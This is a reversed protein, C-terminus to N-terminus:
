CIARLLFGCLVPQQSVLVCRMAEDGGAPAEHWTKRNHVDRRPLSPRPQAQVVSRQEDRTALRAEHEDGKVTRRKGPMRALDEPLTLIM